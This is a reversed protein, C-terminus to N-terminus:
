TISMPGHPLTTMTILAFSVVVDKRSLCLSPLLVANLNIQDDGKPYM